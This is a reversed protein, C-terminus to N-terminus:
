KAYYVKLIKQDSRNLNQNSDSDVHFCPDLHSDFWKPDAVSTFNYM